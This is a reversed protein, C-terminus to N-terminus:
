LIVLHFTDKINDIVCIIDECVKGVYDKDDKLELFEFAKPDIAYLMSDLPAAEGIQMAVVDGLHVCSIVKSLIGGKDYESPVPYYEVAVILDQPVGMKKLVFSAMQSHSLGLVKRTAHHFSIKNERVEKLIRNIVGGEMYDLILRGMTRLVSATFVIDSVFKIDAIEAFKVSAYAGILSFLALEGAKLRFNKLEKQSIRKSWAAVVLRLLSKTGLVVVAQELSKIERSFGYYASNVMRLTDAALIPDKALERAIDPVSVTDSNLMNILKRVHEPYPIVKDAIQDLYSFIDRKVEAEM